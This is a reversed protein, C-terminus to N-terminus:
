FPISNTSLFWMIGATTLVTTRGAAAAAAVVLGGEVYGEVLCVEKLWVVEKM